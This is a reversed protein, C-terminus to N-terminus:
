LKVHFKLRGKIKATMTEHEGGITGITTPITSYPVSIVCLRFAARTLINFRYSLHYKSIMTSLMEAM